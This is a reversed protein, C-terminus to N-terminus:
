NDQIVAGTLDSEQEWHQGLETERREPAHARELCELGKALAGAAGGM